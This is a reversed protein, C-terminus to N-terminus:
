FLSPQMVDDMRIVGNILWTDPHLSHTGMALLMGKQPYDEGFVKEIRTLAEAEGYEHSWNFFTAEIEWDQCTGERKGDETRYQYKFKYPAPSYPILPATNFLDPQALLADFKAKQEAFEQDTKREHYFGTVEPKLLALSRGERREKELSTVVSSALFRERESKKLVGVIELSNHDIRCSEIRPDDLSKRWRFSIREWRGFKKGEELYRFSVPYLRKWNGYIDIAACCVTEGHKVGVQPAAKILVVAESQESTSIELTM